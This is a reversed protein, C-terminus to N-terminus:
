KKGAAKEQMRSIRELCKEMDIGRGIVPKWLDGKEKIRAQMNRIHFMRPDLSDNVEDWELPASVTAGKQPRVCYAAAM